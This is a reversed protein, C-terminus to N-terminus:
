FLTDGLCFETAHRGYLVTPSSECAGTSETSSTSAPGSTSYFYMYKLNRRMPNKLQGLGELRV